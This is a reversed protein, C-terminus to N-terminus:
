ALLITDTINSQTVPMLMNHVLTIDFILFYPTLVRLIM